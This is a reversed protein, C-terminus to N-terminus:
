SFNKRLGELYKKLDGEEIFDIFGKEYELNREDSLFELFLEKSKAPLHHAGGLYYILQKYFWDRKELFKKLIELNIEKFVELLYFLLLLIEAKFHDRLRLGYINSPLKYDPLKYKKKMDQEFEMIFQNMFNIPYFKDKEEGIVLNTLQFPGFSPVIDYISPISTIFRLGYKRLLYELMKRNIEKDKSINSIENLILALLLNVFYNLFKEDGLIQFTLNRKEEDFKFRENELLEELKLTFFVELICFKLYTKFEEIDKIYGKPLEEYENMLIEKFKRFELIREEKEKRNGKLKEEVLNIKEEWLNDIVFAELGKEIEMLYYKTLDSIEKNKLYENIEKALDSYDLQANNNELNLLRKNIESLKEELLIAEKEEEAEEKTKKIIRPLLKYGLVGLLALVVLTLFERRTIRKKDEGGETKGGRSEIKEKRNGPQKRIEM